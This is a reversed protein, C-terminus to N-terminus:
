RLILSFMFGCARDSRDYRRDNTEGPTYTDDFASFVYKM